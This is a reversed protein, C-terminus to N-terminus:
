PTLRLTSLIDTPIDAASANQSRQLARMYAVIAWRDMVTIQQAYAPMTRVGNSIVDFLYGDEISRLRDDHYGIPAFGYGGTMVIGQGDGAAGHCVACFVNYREQGRMYVERTALIPREQVFAGTSDRGSFFRTDSRLMGRAVTGPVPIRMARGDEFFDNSEQAEFRNMSDMNPNIHIPSKDTVNGRCGALVLGGLLIILLYLPSRMCNHTDTTM